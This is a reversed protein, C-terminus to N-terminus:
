SCKGALHAAVKRTFSVATEALASGSAHKAHGVVRLPSIIMEM